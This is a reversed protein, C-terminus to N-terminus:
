QLNVLVLVLGQGHDLSSMAKGLTAGPARTSDAAKMAHGARASTTLLDGPEIPAESADCWTWVRGTLAVPYGGDALSGQQGMLMGPRVGGAGSVIGAVKRDYATSSLALQGPASPDICVTMGPQIASGPGSIDFQESLDAGGTIQLIDTIVRGNGSADEGVIQVSVAGADDYVRLMGHGGDDGDLLVGYQHDDHQWLFLEGGSDAGNLRVKETGASDYVKMERNHATMQHAIVGSSDLTELQAGSGYAHGRVRFTQVNANNLLGLDGGGLNGNGDLVCTLASGNGVGVWAGGDTADGDLELTAANSGNYLVLQGGGNTAGGNLYVGRDAYSGGAGGMALVGNNSIDTWFDITSIGEDQVSYNSGRIGGLVELKSQPALTGIGVNGSVASYMDIGSVTWDSDGGSGTAASMQVTDDPFRIGGLTHLEGDVLFGGMARQAVISQLAYPSSALPVDSLQEFGGGSDVWIRLQPGPALHLFEPLLPVMALDPHGLLVSFVGGEVLIGVSATPESGSVSTGDNSWATNGFEDIIAFKFEAPGTYSVGGSFLSGQYSVYDPVQAFAPAVQLSLIALAVLVLALPSANPRRM